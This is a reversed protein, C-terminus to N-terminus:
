VKSRYHVYFMSSDIGGGVLTSKLLHIRYILLIISVRTFTIISFWCGIWSCHWKLEKVNYIISIHICLYGFIQLTHLSKCQVWVYLNVSTFECSACKKEDRKKEWCLLLLGFHKLHFACGLAFTQVGRNKAIPHAPETM